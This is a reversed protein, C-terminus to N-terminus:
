TVPAPTTDDEDDDELLAVLADIVADLQEPTASVTMAQGDAAELQLLYGDQSDSLSFQTLAPIDAM